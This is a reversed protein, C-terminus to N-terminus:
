SFDLGNIITLRWKGHDRACGKGMGLASKLENEHGDPWKGHREGCRIM